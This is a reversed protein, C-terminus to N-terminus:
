KVQKEKMHKILARPTYTIVSPMIEFVKLGEKYSIYACLLDKIEKIDHEIRKIRRQKYLPKM